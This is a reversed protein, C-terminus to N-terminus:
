FMMRHAMCWGWNPNHSAHMVLSKHKRDFINGNMKMFGHKISLMFGKHHMSGMVGIPASTHRMSHHKSSMKEMKSHDHMPEGDQAFLGISFCALLIFLFKM